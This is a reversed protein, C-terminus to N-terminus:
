REVARDTPGLADGDGDADGDPRRPTVGRRVAFVAGAAALMLGGGVAGLWTTGLTDILSGGLFPGVVRGAAMVAQADGARDAPNASREALAKFVGPIAMWFAFGWTVLAAGFVLPQGSAALLVACLATLAMWPGPIGRRTAPWKAAPVAALANGSYLLAVTGTSLGANADGLVVAYQFISSGGITFVCLAVLMVAAAPVPRSRGGTTVVVDTAGTGRNFALPIIAAGALLAFVGATGGEIAFWAILPGSAVGILPGVVAIDAMGEDDGFVQVWAFWTILGLALGSLLRLGVLVVFPPVLISAANAALAITIAAIFVRRRPRLWRGAGWSGVTFGGLQAVGILSAATLGIGYEAVVLDLLFPTAALVLTNFGVALLVGPAVSPRLLVALRVPVQM